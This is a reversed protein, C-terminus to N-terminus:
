KCPINIFFIMIFIQSQFTSQIGRIVTYLRKSVIVFGLFMAIALHYIAIIM